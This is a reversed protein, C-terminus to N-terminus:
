PRYPLRIPMAVITAGGYKDADIRGEAKLRCLAQVVAWYGADPFQRRIRKRIKRWPLPGGGAEVIASVIAHDLAEAEALAAMSVTDPTIVQYNGNGSCQGSDANHEPEVPNPLETM